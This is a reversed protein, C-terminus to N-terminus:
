RGPMGPITITPAPNPPMPIPIASFFRTVVVEHDQVGIVIEARRHFM